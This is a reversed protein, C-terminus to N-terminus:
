YNVRLGCLLNFNTPRETRLSSSASDTSFHHSLTPEAFLALRDSLRFRMGLGGQVALRVPEVSFGNSPAGAVCKEASGGALAYLTFRESAALLCQLRLPVELTHYTTGRHPLCHYQVGTEVALWKNLMREATLSATFPTKADGKALSTGIGAKLAWASARPVNKEKYQQASTDEEPHSAAQYLEMAQRAAQPYPVYGREQYRITVQVHVVEDDEADHQRAATALCPVIAARSLTPTTAVLKDAANAVLVGEESAPASAETVAQAEKMAQTEEEAAAIALQLAEEQPQTLWLLASGVGLLLLLSAAVRWWRGPYGAKNRGLMRRAMAHPAAALAGELEDWLGERVPMEAEDLRSRFMQKLEDRDYM